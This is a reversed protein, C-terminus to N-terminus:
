IPLPLGAKIHAKLRELDLYNCLDGKCEIFGEKALTDLDQETIRAKRATYARSHWIRSCLYDDTYDYRYAEILEKSFFTEEATGTAIITEEKVRRKFFSPTLMSFIVARRRDLRDLPWYFCPPQKVCAGGHYERAATICDKATKIKGSAAALSYKAEAISIVPQTSGPNTKYDRLTGNEFLERIKSEDGKTEHALYRWSNSLDKPILSSFNPAKGQMVAECESFSFYEQGYIGLQRIVGSEILEPMESKDAKLIKMAQKRDIRDAPDSFAKSPFHNIFKTKM